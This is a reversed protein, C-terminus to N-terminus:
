RRDLAGLGSGNRLWPVEVDLASAVRIASIICGELLVMGDWCWGGVLWVHGDGNRWSKQDGRTDAAGSFIRQLIARSRPNRLTRILTTRSIVNVDSSKIPLIPQTIVVVSKSAVHIAETLSETSNFYLDNRNLKPKVGRMTKPVTQVVSEVAATPVQEMDNRLPEFIKAVVNPSTGIIVQDYLKEMQKITGDNNYCEWCVLVRDGQCKVSSVRSQFRVKVGSSLKAEVEKVGATVTYHNRNGIKRVYNTIDSAPFNLLAEHSCTSVSSFLPLLYYRTFYDPVLMRQLYRGITEGEISPGREGAPSVYYCCFTFWAYCLGVYIAECLWHLVNVGQPLPPPFQHFGSSHILYPKPNVNKSIIKAFCFLFQQKQYSVGLHQYLKLLQPYYGDAFARM